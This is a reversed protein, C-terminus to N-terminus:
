DIYVSFLYDRLRPHPPNFKPPPLSSDAPSHTLELPALLIDSNDFYDLLHIVLSEPQPVGPLDEYHTLDRIFKNYGNEEMWIVHWVAEAIPAFQCLKIELFIAREKKKELADFFLEDCRDNGGWSQFPLQYLFYSLDDHPKQISIPFPAIQELNFSLNHIRKQKKIEYDPEEWYPYHDIYIKRIADSIYKKQDKKM